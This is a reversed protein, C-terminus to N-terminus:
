GVIVITIDARAAAGLGSGVGVIAERLLGRPGLVILNLLSEEMLTELEAALPVRPPAFAVSTLAAPFSPETCEKEKSSAEANVSCRLWARPYPSM